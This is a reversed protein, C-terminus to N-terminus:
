EAGAAFFRQWEEGKATANAKHLWFKKFGAEWVANLETATLQVDFPTVNYLEFSLDSIDFYAQEFDIFLLERLADEASAITEKAAFVKAALESNM